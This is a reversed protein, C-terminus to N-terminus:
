KAVGWEVLCRLLSMYKDDGQKKFVLCLWISNGIHTWNASIRTVTSSGSIDKINLVKKM